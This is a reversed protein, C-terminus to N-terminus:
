LLRATKLQLVNYLTKIVNLYTLLKHSLVKGTHYECSVFAEQQTQAFRGM